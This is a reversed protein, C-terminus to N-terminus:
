YRLSKSYNSEVPETIETESLAGWMAPGSIPELLFLLSFEARYPNYKVRQIKSKKPLYPFGSYSTPNGLTAHM